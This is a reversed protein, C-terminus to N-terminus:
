NKFNEYISKRRHEEEIIVIGENIDYRLPATLKLIDLIQELTEKYFTGTFTYQNLEPSELQISVDFKRELISTFDKLSESEIIWYNDKWSTYIEVKV